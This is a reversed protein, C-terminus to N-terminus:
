ENTLEVIFRVMMAAVQIAEKRQAKIDYDRQNKKIETWLEDFEELAVAYAEHQNIFPAPYVKKAKLTETKIEGIAENLRFLYNDSISM